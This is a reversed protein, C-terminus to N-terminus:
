LRREFRIIGASSEAPDHEGTDKESASVNEAEAFGCAEFLQRSVANDAKVEGVLVRGPFETGALRVAETLIRRGVGQGRAEPAVAYSLVVESDDGSLRLQGVRFSQRETFSAQSYMVREFVYLRESPDALKASFWAAHEEPGILKDNFSGLRTTEDNRVALWWDADASQAPRGTVIWKEMRNEMVKEMKRDTEGAARTM